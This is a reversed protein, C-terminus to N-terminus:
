AFTALTTFAERGSDGTLILTGCRLWAHARIGEPASPDKTVGLYVTADVDRRNLLAAGALAQVLCSCEWPTHAAVRRVARGVGDAKIATAVDVQSPTTAGQRLGLIRAVHEFPFKVAARMLALAVLARLLLLREATTCARFKALLGTAASAKNSV